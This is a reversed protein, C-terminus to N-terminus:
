LLYSDSLKCTDKQLCDLCKGMIELFEFVDDVARKLSIEEMSRYVPDSHKAHANVIDAIKAWKDKFYRMVDLYSNWRTECHTPPRIM